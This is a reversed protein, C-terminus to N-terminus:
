RLKCFRTQCFRELRKWFCRRGGTKCARPLQEKNRKNGWKSRIHIWGSATRWTSSVHAIKRGVTWFSSPLSPDSLRFRWAWVWIRPPNRTNCSSCSWPPAQLGAFAAATPSLSSTTSCGMAWRQDIYTIDRLSNVSINSITLFIFFVDLILVNFLYIGRCNSSKIIM